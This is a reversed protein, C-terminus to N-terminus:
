RRTLEKGKILVEQGTELRYAKPFFHVLWLKLVRWAQDAPHDTDAGLRESLFAHAQTDTLGTSALRDIEAMLPMQKLIGAIYAEFIDHTLGHPPALAVLDQQAAEHASSVMTDAGSGRYVHWLRDPVPCGPIWQAVMTENAIEEEVEPVRRVANAEKLDEAEQLLRDRLEATALIASDLLAAEWEPLGPFDTPLAVLLEINAPTQWGLGRATLNASGVLCREGSHYYKAHLHPHVLLRGGHKSTVDNFIEIDCVGAAIDEPLWRTVCTLQTVSDPIAAILKRLTPFKIYPAAIFVSDTASRMLDLVSDGPVVLSM